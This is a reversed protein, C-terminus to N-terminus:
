TSVLESPQNNRGSVLADLALLLNLQQLDRLPLLLLAAIGEEAVEARTKAM